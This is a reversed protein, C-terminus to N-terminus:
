EKHWGAVEKNKECIYPTYTDNRSPDKNRRIYIKITLSNEFFVTYSVHRVSYLYM